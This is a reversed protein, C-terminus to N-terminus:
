DSRGITPARSRVRSGLYGLGNAIYMALLALGTVYWFVAYGLHREATLYPQTVHDFSAIPYPQKTHDSDLVVISPEELTRTAVADQIAELDYSDFSIVEGKPLAGSDALRTRVDEDAIIRSPRHLLGILPPEYRDLVSLDIREFQERHLWGLNLLVIGGDELEFLAGLWGGPDGDLTRHKFLFLHDPDVRGYLQVRQFNGAFDSLARIDLPEQTLQSDRQQELEAKQQYRSFQWTGLTLLLALGLLTGLTPWLRLRFRM